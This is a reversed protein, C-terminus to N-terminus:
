NNLLHEILEYGKEKLIGSEEGAKESYVSHNGLVKTSDYLLYPIPNGTHTRKCIPTPHDPLILM